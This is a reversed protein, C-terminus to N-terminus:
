NRLDHVKKSILFKISNKNFYKLNQDGSSVSLAVFKM